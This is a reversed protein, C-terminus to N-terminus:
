DVTGKGGAFPNGGSMSIDEVQGGDRLMAEELRAFKNLGGDGCKKRLGTISQVQQKWFTADKGGDTFVWRIVEVVEAESFHDLRVLQSLTARENLYDKTGPKPQKVRQHTDSIHKRLETHLAQLTPM